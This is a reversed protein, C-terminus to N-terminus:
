VNVTIATLAIPGLASDEGDFATVGVAAWVAGSAGVATLAVAPSCDADTLQVAGTFLPPLAIM